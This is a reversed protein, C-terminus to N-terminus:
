TLQRRRARGPGSAAPPRRRTAPHLRVPNNPDTVPTLTERLGTLSEPEGIAELRDVALRIRGDDEPAPRVPVDPGLALVESVRDLASSLQRTMTTFNAELRGVEDRGSVPLAVPYDGDAVALTARELRRVRRVLRRSALLGFLVGVPVIAILLASSTSLLARTGGLQRLESWEGFLGPSSWPAQV